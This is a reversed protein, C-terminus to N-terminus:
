DMQLTRLTLNSDGNKVTFLCFNTTRKSHCDLQGLELSCLVCYTDLTRAQSHISLTTVENISLCINFKSDARFIELLVISVFITCFDCFRRNCTHRSKFLCFSFLFTSQKRMSVSILREPSSTLKFLESRFSLVSFVLMLLLCWKKLTKFSM